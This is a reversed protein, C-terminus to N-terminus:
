GDANGLDFFPVENAKGGASFVEFQRQFVQKEPFFVVERDERHGVDGKVVAHNECDALIPSERFQGELSEVVRQKVSWSHHTALALDKRGNTLCEM